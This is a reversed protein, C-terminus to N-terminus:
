PLVKWVNFEADSEVGVVLAAKVIKKDLKFDHTHGLRIASAPQFTPTCPIHRGRVFQQPFSASTTILFIQETGWCGYNAVINYSGFNSTREIVLETNPGQYARCLFFKGFGPEEYIEPATVIGTGPTVSAPSFRPAPTETKPTIKTSPKFGPPMPPQVNTRKTSGTSVCGVLTIALLTTTFLKM